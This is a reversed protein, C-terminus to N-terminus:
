TAESLFDHLGNSLYTVSFLCVHVNYKKSLGFARKKLLFLSVISRFHTLSTKGFIDCFGLGHDLVNTCIFLHTLFSINLFFFILTQTPPKKKRNLCFLSTICTPFWLFFIKEDINYAKFNCLDMLKLIVFHYNNTIKHNIQSKKKRPITWRINCNPREFYFFVIRGFFQIIFIFYLLLIERM